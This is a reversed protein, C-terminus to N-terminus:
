KASGKVTGLCKDVQHQVKKSVSHWKRKSLGTSVRGVLAQRTEGAELDRFLAQAATLDALANGVPKLAESDAAMKSEFSQAFDGVTVASFIRVFRVKMSHLREMGPFKDHNRLTKM